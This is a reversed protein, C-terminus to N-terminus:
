EFLTQSIARTIAALYNLAFLYRFFGPAERFHPGKEQTIAANTLWYIQKLHAFLEEVGPPSTDRLSPPSSCPFTVAELANNIFFYVVM